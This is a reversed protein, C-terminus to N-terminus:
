RAPAAAPRRTLSIDRGTLSEALHAAFVEDETRLHLDGEHCLKIEPGGPLTLFLDDRGLCFGLQARERLLEPLDALAVVEAQWELGAFEPTDSFDSLSWGHMLELTESGLARLVELVADLDVPWAAPSLPPTVWEM